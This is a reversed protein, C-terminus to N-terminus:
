LTYLNVFYFLNLQTKVTRISMQSAIILQTMDKWRGTQLVTRGETRGCFFDAEVPHIKMFYTIEFNKKEFIQRSFKLNM